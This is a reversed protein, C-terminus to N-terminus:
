SRTQLVYKNAAQKTIGLVGGIRVFTWGEKVRALCFKRTAETAKIRARDAEERLKLVRLAERRSM